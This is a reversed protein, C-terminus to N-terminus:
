SCFYLDKNISKIIYYNGIDKKSDESLLYRVTERISNEITILTGDM